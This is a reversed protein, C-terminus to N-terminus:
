TIIHLSVLVELSPGGARGTGAAGNQPAGLTSLLQVTQNMREPMGKSLQISGVALVQPTGFLDKSYLQVAITSGTSKCNLAVKAAPKWLNGGRPDAQAPSTSQSQGSTSFVAYPAGAFCSSSPPLSHGALLEIFVIGIYEIMAVKSSSVAIGGLQEILQGNGEKRFRGEEYKSRIFREMPYDSALLEARDFRAPFNAELVRNVALNGNKSRVVSLSEANWNDAALSLVTSIHTGMKRHVGACRICVLVGHNMASWDPAVRGCDACRDNGPMQKLKDTPTEPLVRTSTPATVTPVAHSVQQLERRSTWRLRYACCQGM